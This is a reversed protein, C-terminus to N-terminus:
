GSTSGEMDEDLPPGRWTLASMWMSVRSYIVEEKAGINSLHQFSARVHAPWESMPPKKAVPPPVKSVAKEVVRSEEKGFVDDLEDLRNPSRLQVTQLEVLSIVLQPTALSRLFASSESHHRRFPPKPAPRPALKPAPGPALKPAPGPALKPASGPALKPAPGPVLKPTPGSPSAPFASSNLEPFAVPLSLRAASARPIYSPSRPRMRWGLPDPGTIVSTPVPSPSSPSSCSSSSSSSSSHSPHIRSGLLENPPCSHRKSSAERQPPQPGTKEKKVAIPSARFKCFDASWRRLHSPPTMNSASSPCRATESGLRERRQVGAASTPAKNM